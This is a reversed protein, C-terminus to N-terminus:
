QMDYVQLLEIVTMSYIKNLIFNEVHEM